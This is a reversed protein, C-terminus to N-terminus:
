YEVNLQQKIATFYVWQGWRLVENKGGFTHLLWMVFYLRRDSSSAENTCM